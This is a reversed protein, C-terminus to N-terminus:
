HVASREVRPFDRLCVQSDVMVVVSSADMSAVMRADWEAASLVALMVDKAVVMVDAKRAVSRDARSDVMAFVWCDLEDMPVVRREVRREVSRLDWDVAKAVASSVVRSFEKWDAKSDVM